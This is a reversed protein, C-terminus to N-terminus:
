KKLFRTSYPYLAPRPCSGPVASGPNKPPPVPSQPADRVGHVHRRPLSASGNDIEIEIEL